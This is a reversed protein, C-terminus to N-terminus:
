VSGSSILQDLKLVIDIPAKETISGPLNKEHSNSIIEKETPMGRLFLYKYGGLHVKPSYGPLRWRLFRHLAVLYLYAQLPYHHHIMESQMKSQNYNFPGCSPVSGEEAPEGLWNSKWDVVWWSAKKIDDQNPLVLDISGTLFGHSCINLNAIKKYYNNLYHEKPIRQLIRSIDVARVKNEANSLSLDFHLESIRNHFKVESLKKYKFNQGLPMTFVRNLGDKVNDLLSQDIDNKRLEESIILTTNKDHIPLSFDIRELIRHLCDGALPGKPFRELPNSKSWNNSQSSDLLIESTENTNTKTIYSEKQDIDRGEEISEPNVFMNNKDVINSTWSSYSFRGWYIDLSRKLIPGITLNKTQQRNIFYGNLKNADISRLSANINNRDFWEQIKEISLDNNKVTECHPGFLFTRLPNSEQHTANCWFIILHKQARTIAVYALREAEQISENIANRIVKVGPGWNVNQSLLWRQDSELRWLPGKPLPPAQWLYPCIVVKFQLGKSRHVTIINIAKEAMDSNPHREDPINERPLQREQQFWRSAGKADLDNIHIVEEVLQACQLLDNLVRPQNALKAFSKSDLLESLCGILGTQKLNKSWNRFKQILLDISDNQENKSLKEIEWNLLASCSLAKINYISTPNSLCILLKQLLYAGETNFVDGKNILRTALGAESLTKRIKEVQNHSRVIICIDELELGKKHISLLELISNAVAKPIKREFYSKSYSRSENSNRHENQLTLVELPPDQHSLPQLNSGPFLNPIKLNSNILGPKMLKNLTNILPITTRYNTLLSDCREAEAKAQLYTNLDGGRFKYIAQKPDGVIILLNRPHKAFAEKFIRWQVPDTDQFEDILAVRYDLSVKQLLSKSSTVENHKPDLVKLQESYSILGSQKRRERLAKLTWCLSYELVFESPKDWLDAIAQQLESDISKYEDMNNRRLVESMKQPHFYEKILSQARIEEYFPGCSQTTKYNVNLDNVWENLELYRDRRPKPSFPKTDNKGLERLSLALGKLDKNLNIGGKKWLDTFDEWCRKKCNNFQSSLSKSIDFNAQDIIFNLSPDNDIEVLYNVLKDLTIGALYIGKLDSPHLSLIQSKWYDHVISKVIEFNEDDTTAQIDLPSGIDLAERTLIRNCFGHITTIDANDISSLAKLLLNAWREQKLKNDSIKHLWEILVNDIGMEEYNTTAREIGNLAQTIRESIRSKIESSTAKTFSVVLIQDIPYEKETLLRLVLHALTFTKGTGASAEILRVGPELPYNNPAFEIITKKM